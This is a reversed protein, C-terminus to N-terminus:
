CRRPKDGDSKKRWARMENPGIFMVLIADPGAFRDFVDEHFEDEGPWPYSYVIGFDELDMGWEDYPSPGDHGLSPLTPDYTLKEAGNPLFNGHFLEVDAPWQKVTQEAQRILDPHSEIGFAALKLTSAMCAVSAFGCGWELFRRSTLSEHDLIWTLTQYVLEYDAAVFQAAHHQNWCDQFREIRTRMWTLREAISPAIPLLNIDAPLEIPCLM